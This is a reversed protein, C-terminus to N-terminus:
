NKPERRAIREGVVKAVFWSNTIAYRKWLNRPDQALRYLWEFGHRTWAPADKKIGALVDFSGGVGIAVGARLKRRNRAIFFEQRPSGMAVLLLQARSANIEEVVAAEEEASFYGSRAGAVQLGSYDQKLKETLKDLVEAKAGLFFVPMHNRNLLPLLAKLLMIGGVHARLPSGLMRCGWVVAWEPIVLEAQCILEALNPDHQALWLKNANLVAIQQLPQSQAREGIWRVAEEITLSDVPYELIRARPPVFNAAPHAGAYVLSEEM